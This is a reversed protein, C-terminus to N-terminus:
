ERSVKWSGITSLSGGAYCSYTGSMKSESAKGKFSCTVQNPLTQVDLKVDENDITGTSIKGTPSPCDANAKKGAYCRYSGTITNGSQSLDFRISQVKYNATGPQGSTARTGKWTGSVDIKGPLEAVVTTVSCLLIVVISLARFGSWGVQRRRDCEPCVSRAHSQFGVTFRTLGIQGKRWIHM